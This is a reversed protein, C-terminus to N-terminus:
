APLGKQLFVRIEASWECHMVPTPLRRKSRFYQQVVGSLVPGPLGNDLRLPHVPQEHDVVFFRGRRMM